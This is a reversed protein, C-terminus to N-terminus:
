GMCQKNQPLIKINVFIGVRERTGYNGDKCFPIRFTHHITKNVSVLQESQFTYQVQVNVDRSAIESQMELKRENPARKSIVSM